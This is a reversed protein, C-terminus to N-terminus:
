LLYGYDIQLNYLSRTLLDRTSLAQLYNRTSLNTQPRKHSLESVYCGSSSMGKPGSPLHTLNRM